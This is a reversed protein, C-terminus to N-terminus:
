RCPARCFPVQMRATLLQPGPARVSRLRAAYGLDEVADLFAQPQVVSSDFAVQAARARWRRAQRHPRRSRLCPRLPAPRGSSCVASLPRAPRQRRAEATNTLLSVAASAVGTLSGLTAEVAGSCASCTMGEVAVQAARRMYDHCPARAGSGSAAAGARKLRSCRLAATRARGGLHFLVEAISTHDSCDPAPAAANSTGHTALELLATTSWREM